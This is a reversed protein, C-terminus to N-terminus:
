IGFDDDLNEEECSCSDDTVGFLIVSDKAEALVSSAIEETSGDERMELASFLMPMNCGGFVKCKPMDQSIMVATSFPTGGALDSLFIIEDSDLDSILKRMKEELEQNGMGNNFNIFYIDEQPGIVYEMTKQLATAFEGHGTVIIPTM